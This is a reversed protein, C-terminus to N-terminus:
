QSFNLFIKLSYAYLILGYISFFPLLIFCIIIPFIKSNEYTKSDQGPKPLLALFNLVGFFCVSWSDWIYIITGQNEFHSLKFFITILLTGLGILLVSISVATFLAKTAGFLFAYKESPNKAGFMGAAYILSFFVLICLINKSGFYQAVFFYFIGAFIIAPIQWIFRNKEHHSEHLIEGATSFIAAIFFSFVLHFTEPIEGRFLIERSILLTAALCFVIAVPFRLIGTSIKQLFQHFM